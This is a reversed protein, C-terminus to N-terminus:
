VSPSPTGVEDQPNQAGLDQWPEWFDWESSLPNPLAATVGHVGQDTLAPARPTAPFPPCLHPLFAQLDQEM